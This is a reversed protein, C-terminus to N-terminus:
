PQVQNFVSYMASVQAVAVFGVLGGVFMIVAPQFLETAKKIGFGVEREYYAAAKGLQVSLSGTKEGVRIMQRAATPFLGTEAIPAALGGGRVLTDRVAVMRQEFVTNNTSAASMDIAEPLPVGAKALAALVRCFRELSILHFLNGIVPMRMMLRDRRPKGHRGGIAGFAAGALVLTGVALLPLNGTFFDTSGLLIRTPLPLDAGLSRYMGAFKPLVVVSMIVMAIVTVVLVVVPYTLASKVSRRAELDRDLYLALRELVEDLRGTFEASRVMAQYYPPFVSPHAGVADSFSGGRQITQHMARVVKRMEDDATEEGVIELAELVSIGAEVFSSMQRSFGMVVEASVSRGYQKRWFPVREGSDGTAGSGAAGPAATAGSSGVADPGGGAATEGRRRGGISRREAAVPTQERRRTFWRREAVVQDPHGPGPPDLDDDSSGSPGSSGAAGAAGAASTASTTGPARAPPRAASPTWSDDLSALPAPRSAGPEPLV